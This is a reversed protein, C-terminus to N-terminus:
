FTEERRIFAFYSQRLAEVFFAVVFSCLGAITAPLSILNLKYAAIVVTSIVFYRIVYRFIRVRPRKGATESRLVAAMSTRLWHYNLLSLAGGLFLGSTVRWPAFIVAAVVTIVVTAIMARFVRLELSDDGCSLAESRVSSAIESM